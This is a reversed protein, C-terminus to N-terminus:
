FLIIFLYIVDCFLNWLNRWESKEKATENSSTYRSKWIISFLFIPKKVQFYPAINFRLILLIIADM